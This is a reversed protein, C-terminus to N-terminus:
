DVPEAQRLGRLVAVLQAVQYPKAVHAQFGAALTRERDQERAYATVAVAPLVDPALQLQTRVAHLLQYGDMRPMGIDCVLVDIPPTTTQLMELAAPGSVATLVEAGQEELMRQLFELMDRQDEVALVRLGALQRGEPTELVSSPQGLALPSRVDARYAPLRVTFSAGQGAGASSASVEGGHLGVLQKVIALGLGLGGHRRSASSDAQRFRDFVYPLMEPSIGEGTDRVELEIERSGNARMRVRVRGGPPTFKLANSILNWMVQQLRTADALVVAAGEQELELALAINKLEATPRQANVTLAALEALDVPKLELAVKGAVIRSMDVLDAIIQSQAMANDVIVTLARKMQDDGATYKRQLVGAWSVINSLPTRLEHSLTALFEDKARIASEAEARAAREAGLLQEREQALQETTASRELMAGVRALLERASFPKVLYDDAGADLGEIRAEEGARASLMIVPLGRLSENARLAALLGFGDLRPMMVDCLVLDPRESRVAELAAAGDTTSVVTYYPTLLECLYARMDANDDALVIRAGFTAAFRQDPPAGDGDLALRAMGRDDGDRRDDPLWRLAEQVFAQAGIATSALARSGRIREAPLHAAGLPLWVSFTSGRGSESAVEVRGGHLRVLEQVLALGIGSGEHTRGQVSEVRYFRDFLRSLEGRPVGVGTDIVDLRAEGDDERLRVTIRGQLTFKFANSLLNLVVKEWMDRDVYVPEALTQCEVELELGAREITSRFTSALDRTLAPLDVPEYAAEVRGAEIRAFDLLSNVLKQLRLANRHALELRDRIEPPTRRSGLTQEVPALLLTLPTRFEHSVNSFFATKARDLEALAEARQREAEYARANAVATAIQGALLEFFGRYQADFRVRPSVGAVLVGAPQHAINSKIPVAVATHPPDSWPGPPVVPWRGPLAEILQVTETRLANHLEPALVHAPADSALELRSPSVPGDPAVGATGALLAVEGDPALLYLMAFPVDRPYGRLIKAATACAEEATKAEAVRSALASLAEVRREGILKDTIEHVSALVGGIGRPATDDPVPSYAITFHSEEVYGHRNIELDIDEMWTAPGGGFPADILPGIINWIEPWCEAAPQGLSVPHKTGLVPRYPDNYIQIYQPGWWLLLPFRNVLLLNVMMRLSPSWGEPVGIPTRSWDHARMREGMEGGGALFATAHSGGAPVSVTETM